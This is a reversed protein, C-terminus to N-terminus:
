LARGIRAGDAVAHRLHRPAFADGILHANAGGFRSVYATHLADDGVGSSSFLVADAAMEQEEDTLVNRLVVGGDIVRVPAHLATIAVGKRMLRSTLTARLTIGITEGLSYQRTVIEVDYGRDALYDATKAGPTYGTEDLIVVRKGPPVFRGSLVDAVPAANAREAGPLYPRRPRAGTAFVIAQADLADLAAVDVDHGRLIRVGCRTLERELWDVISAYNEWGPARSAARIAGGLEESREYLTVDHGRQAAVRAAEMGAPGGGVIAVRQPTAAPELTSWERERGVVANQVCAIPFGFYLRDICGENSGMCLRIESTRGEVAKRPMEPDAIMARTMGVFDAVGSELVAEAEDPTTIRGTLILPARVRKRVLAALPEFTRKPYYASPINYARSAYGEITGGTITFYDLLDLADLRAIIELLERRALGPTMRDDASVRAGVVFDRSVAERVARVVEISFRMRHELSGGYADTRKNIAPNWMQDPLQDDYFALDCGDFGCAELRAAARAYDGVIRGIEAVSLVHPIEPSIEGGTDSPGSGVIDQHLSTRRGMSTIQSIALAGHQRVASAAARLGPVCGDDWLNVHNPPIPTLRSAAASGFMMVVGCGGKAKAEHYAILRDSPWGNEALNTGHSTSVIRNRSERRGLPFPSFLREYM